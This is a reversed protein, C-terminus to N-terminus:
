GIPQQSILKLKQQRSLQKIQYERKLADSKNDFHESYVLKVPRRSHTYKSGGKGSNHTYLRKEINNTAGCYLTDDNCKLLYVFWHM